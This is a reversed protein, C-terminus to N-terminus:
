DGWGIFFTNGQPQGQKTIYQGEPLDKFVATHRDATLKRWCSSASLGEGIESQFYIGALKNPESSEANFRAVKVKTYPPLLDTYIIKM